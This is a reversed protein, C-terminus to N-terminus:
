HKFRGAIGTKPPFHHQRVMWAREAAGRMLVLVNRERVPLPREFYDTAVLINQGENIKTFDEIPQKRTDYPWAQETDGLAARIDALIFEYPQTPNIAFADITLSLSPAYVTVTVNDPMHSMTQCRFDSIHHLVSPSLHSTVSMHHILPQHSNRRVKRTPSLTACMDPPSGLINPSLAIWHICLINMGVHLSATDLAM